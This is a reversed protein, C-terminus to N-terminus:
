VYDLEVLMEMILKFFLYHDCVCIAAAAAAPGVM